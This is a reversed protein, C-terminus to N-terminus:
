FDVEIEFVNYRFSVSFTRFEIAVSNYNMEVDSISNMMPQKFNMTLIRYGERDLYGLNMNPFYEETNPIELYRM